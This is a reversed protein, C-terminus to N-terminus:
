KAGAKRFPTGLINVIGRIIGPVVKVLVTIILWSLLIGIALLICGVGAALIGVAPAIFVKALGAVVVAIGAFLIAFGSVGFAFIVAIVAILLGFIVALAAIGLPLIVPSAILIILVIAIVKWINTNQSHVRKKRGNEAEYEADYVKDEWGDTTVDAMIEQADQFRADEYGQESYEGYDGAFGARIKAAVEEPSGLERIVRDENEVGADDFYDNYYQLAEEREEYPLVLLLQELREMYEKRKM